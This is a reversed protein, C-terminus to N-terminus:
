ATRGGKWDICLRYNRDARGVNSNVSFSAPPQPRMAAAGNVGTRAIGAILAKKIAAGGVEGARLEYRASVRLRSLSDHTTRCLAILGLGTILLLLGHYRGIAM